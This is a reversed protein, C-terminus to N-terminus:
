RLRDTRSSLAHPPQALALSRAHRRRLAHGAMRAPRAQRGHFYWRDSEVKIHKRVMTFGLDKAAVIDAALAEDSPPTLLGDPGYGQDLLGRLFLPEHNLMFRPTGAADREVCVTRFACYSHVRDEGYAVVIPYLFPDDPSWLHPGSVALAVQQEDGYAMPGGDISVGLRGGATSTRASVTLTATDPDADISLQEIHAEPVEELWAPKWIGSQATYWMTGSALKQKGRLQTGTESPDWVCLELINEGNLLWNSIDLVLPLYCGRHEGIKEGNLYISCAHDV